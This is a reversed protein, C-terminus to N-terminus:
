GNDNKEVEEIAELWQGLMDYAGVVEKAKDPRNVRELEEALNTLAFHAAKISDILKSM